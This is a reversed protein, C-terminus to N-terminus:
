PRFRRGYVSSLWISTLAGVLEDDAESGTGVVAFYFSRESMAVLAAALPRAPPGDPAVGAHRDKEIQATGATTFRELVKGWLDRIQPDSQWSEVTSRGLRVSTVIDCPVKSRESAVITTRSKPAISRSVIAM